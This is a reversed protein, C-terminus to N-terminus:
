KISSKCFLKFEKYDLSEYNEDYKVFTVVKTIKGIATYVIIKGKVKNTEINPFSDFLCIGSKISYSKIKCPTSIGTKKYDITSGEWMKENNSDLYYFYCNNWYEINNKILKHKDKKIELVIEKVFIDVPSCNIINLEVSGVKTSFTKENKLSITGYYADCDRDTIEIKIKPKNMLYTKISIILSIFSIFATAIIAITEGTM